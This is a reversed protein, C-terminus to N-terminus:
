NSANLYKAVDTQFGAFHVKDQIGFIKVLQELNKRENGDGVIVLDYDISINKLAHILVHCGKEPSLRGVYIIKLRPTRITNQNPVKLTLLNEVLYLKNKNVGNRSLEKKMENSVAIVGNASKLILAEIFEYLKVKFTHGTRGHHTIVLKTSKPKTLWAYFVAKIGHAHLVQPNEDKLSQKLKFYLKFDFINRSDFSSYLIGSLSALQEFKRVVEPVRTENIIWLKIDANKQTLARHGNLIVKEAGGIPGPAFLVITKFNSKLQM